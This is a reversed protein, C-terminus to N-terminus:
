AAKRYIGAVRRHGVAPGDIRLAGIKGDETLLTLRFPWSEAELVDAEVPLLRTGPWLLGDLVLGGDGPRVILRRAGDRYEGVCRARQGDTWAVEAVPTLGVFAAIARRREEWTGERPDLSLTPLSTDRVIADTLASHERWYDLLGDFGSAGRRRAFPSADFTAAHWCAWAMSRREFLRRMAAEPEPQGLYVLAADLGQLAAVTKGVYAAIVDPRLDRRLMRVVPVQLWASELIDVTGSGRAAAAYDVWRGLWDSLCAMWSPSGAPGAAVVPHPQEEEYFWRAPRGALTLQRALWQATASKGTGPFGEVLVLRRAM